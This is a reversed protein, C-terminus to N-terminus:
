DNSFLKTWDENPKAVYSHFGMSQAVLCNAESDDIFLTQTPEILADDIVAQFIEKDPKLMKMEFSLYIKEFYNNANFGNYPFFQKCSWDWHIANTNSLLYVMYKKRLELLAALKYEPIGDLFTNWADDIEQDSVPRDILERIHDRFQASSILGQENKKFFGQKYSDDILEKINHLGLSEFRSVCRDRNLNVIVNGYDFIINKIGKIKM